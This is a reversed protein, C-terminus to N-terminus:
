TMLQFALSISIFVNKNNKPIFISTVAMKLRLYTLQNNLRAEPTDLDLVPPVALQKTSHIDSWLIKLMKKALNVLKKRSGLYHSVWETLMSGKEKNKQIFCSKTATLM